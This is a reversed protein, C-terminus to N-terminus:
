HVDVWFYEVLYQCISDFVVDSFDDVMIMTAKYRSHLSHEVYFFGDIYDVMYVFQFLFFCMIMESSSPFGKVFHLIGEHLPTPSMLVLLFM